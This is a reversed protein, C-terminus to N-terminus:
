AIREGYRLIFLCMKDERLFYLFIMGRLSVHLNWDVHEKGVVTNLWQGFEIRRKDLWM